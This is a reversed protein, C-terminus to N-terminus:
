LAEEEVTRVMHPIFSRKELSARELEENARELFYLLQPTRMKGSLNFDTFDFNKVGGKADKKGGAKGDKGDAKGDAKGDEKAGAAAPEPGKKGKPQAAAPLVLACVLALAMAPTRGWAPATLRLRM